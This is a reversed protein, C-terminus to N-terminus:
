TCLNSNRHGNGDGNGNRDGDTNRVSRRDNRDVRVSQRTGFGCCLYGKSGMLTYMAYWIWWGPEAVRSGLEFDSDQRDM